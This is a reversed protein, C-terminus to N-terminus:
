NFPGCLVGTAMSVSGHTRSVRCVSACQRCQQLGSKCVTLLNLSHITEALFSPSTKGPKKLPLLLVYGQSISQKM